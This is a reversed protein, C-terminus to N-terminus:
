SGAEIEGRTAASWAGLAARYADESAREARELKDRKLDHAALDHAARLQAARAELFATYLADSPRAKAM